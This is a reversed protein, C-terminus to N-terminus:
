DKNLSPSVSLLKEVREEGIEEKDTTGYQLLLWPKEVQMIFLADRITAVSDATKDEKEDEKEKDKDKDESKANGDLVNVGVDLVATSLDSSFENLMTMCDPAYAIFAASFTFVLVLNLFMHMAKSTEKKLLGTYAVYIGVMSIIFSILKGYLGTNEIGKITIGSLGQLGDGIKGIMDGIFDLNYAEQIVYGTISSVHLSVTWIFDSFSYIGYMVGKGISDGWNWPLWGGSNSVYFDLRYNKLPYKSFSYIGDIVEEILGAAQATTGYTLFVTCVTLFIGLIVGANRIKKKM